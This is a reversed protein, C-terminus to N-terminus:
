RGTETEPTNSNCIHVVVGPKLLINQSIVIIQPLIGMGM